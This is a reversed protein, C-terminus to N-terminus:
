SSPRKNSSQLDLGSPRGVLTSTLLLSDRDFQIPFVGFEVGTTKPNALTAERAPAEEGEGKEEKRCREERRKKEGHIGRVRKHKQCCHDEEIITSSGKTGLLSAPLADGVLPFGGEKTKETARVLAACYGGAGLEQHERRRTQSKSIASSPLLSPPPKIKEKRREKAAQIRCTIRCSWSFYILHM